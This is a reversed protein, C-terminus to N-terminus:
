FQLVMRLANLWLLLKADATRVVDIGLIRIQDKITEPRVGQEVLQRHQRATFCVIGTKDQNEKLGLAQSAEEWVQIGAMVQQVDSSCIARDDVFMSTSVNEMADVKAATDALLFVLALPSMADGQPLSCSVKDPSSATFRGLQLWRRQRQWIHGLLNCWVPSLGKRRMIALALSPWVNDFDFCKEFDLSAIVQKQEIAEALDSWATAVDRGALAGHCRTPVQSKVWERVEPQSVFASGVIRVLISQVSIPRMAKAPVANGAYVNDDKRIHVQRM